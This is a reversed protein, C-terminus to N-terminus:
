DPILRKVTPVDEHRIIDSGPQQLDTAEIINRQEPEAYNADTIGACGALLLSFSFIFFFSFNTIKKMIKAPNPKPQLVLSRNKILNNLHNRKSSKGTSLLLQNPLQHRFFGPGFVGSASCTPKMSAASLLIASVQNYLTNMFPKTVIM